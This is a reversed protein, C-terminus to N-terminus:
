SSCEMIPFRGPTYGPLTWVIDVARTRVQDILEPPKGSLHLAPYIECRLKDKSEHEIRDCWPRIFKQHATSGAPLFHHVRLTIPQADVATAVLAIAVVSFLRLARPLRAHRVSPSM